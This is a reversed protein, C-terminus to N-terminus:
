SNWGAVMWNCALPRHAFLGTSNQPLLIFKVFCVIFLSPAVALWWFGQSSVWVISYHVPRFYVLEACELVVVLKFSPEILILLNICIGNLWFSALCGGCWLSDVAFTSL